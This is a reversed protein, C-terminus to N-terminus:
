EVNRGEPDHTELGHSVEKDDEVDGRVEEDVAANTVLEFSGEWFKANKEAFSDRLPVFTFWLETVNIDKINRVTMLIWGERLNSLEIIVWLITQCEVLWYITSGVGRLSPFTGFNHM